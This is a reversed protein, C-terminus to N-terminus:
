RGKFVPARRENFALVGERRDETPVTRFATDLLAGLEAAHASRRTAENFRPDEWWEPHGLAACEDKVMAAEDASEPRFGHDVSVVCLRVGWRHAWLWASLPGLENAVGMSEARQVKSFGWSTVAVLDSDWRPVRRTWHM